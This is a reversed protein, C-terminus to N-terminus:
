MWDQYLSKDIKNKQYLKLTEENIAQRFAVLFEDHESFQKGHYLNFPVEKKNLFKLDAEDHQLLVETKDLFKAFLAESTKAAEFEEWLDIIEQKLEQSLPKILKILARREQTEKDVPAKNFAWNDTYHIEVLDHVIAMKITKAINTPRKLYPNILIAMLALRWSHEAVSERRGSSLWSHRLLTKLKEADHLFKIIGAVDESHM